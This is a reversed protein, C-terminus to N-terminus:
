AKDKMTSGTRKYAARYGETRNGYGKGTTTSPGGPGKGGPGVVSCGTQKATGRTGGPGIVKAQGAM